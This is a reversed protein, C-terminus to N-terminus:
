ASVWFKLPEAVSSRGRAAREGLCVQHVPSSEFRRLECPAASKCDAAMLWEAVQGEAAGNKVVDASVERSRMCPKRSRAWRAYRRAKDCSRRFNTNSHTRTSPNRAHRRPGNSSSAFPNSGGVRQNCILHEVLQAVGAFPSERELSVAWFRGRLVPCAEFNLVVAKLRCSCCCLYARGCSL